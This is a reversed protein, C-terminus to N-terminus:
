KLHKTSTLRCVTPQAIVAPLLHFSIREKVSPFSVEENADLSLCAIQQGHRNWWHSYWNDKRSAPYNLLKKSYRTPFLLESNKKKRFFFIKFIFRSPVIRKLYRSKLIFTNQTGCPTQFSPCCHCFTNPTKNLNKLVAYYNWKKQWCVELM